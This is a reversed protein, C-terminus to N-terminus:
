PVQHGGAESQRTAPGDAACENGSVIRGEDAPDEPVDNGAAGTSLWTGLIRPPRQASDTQTAPEQSRDEHAARDRLATNRRAGIDAGPKDENM